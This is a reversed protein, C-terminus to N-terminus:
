LALLTEKERSLFNNGNRKDFLGAIRDTEKDFWEALAKVNYNNNAQYYAAKNRITMTVKEKPINSFLKQAATYFYFRRSLNKQDVDTKSFREFLKVAKTYEEQKTYYVLLVHANFIDGGFKTRSLTKALKLAFEDALENSGERLLPIIFNTYTDKPIHTCTLKRTLLPAAVKLAGTLDNAFIRFTVDRNIVCAECDDLYDRKKFKKWRDHHYKGKELDGMNRYAEYAYQHYVKENSGYEVYRKKLDELTNEIQAKTVAPFDPMVMVVWKYYWLVIMKEDDTGKTQAYKLLWPFVTFYKETFSGESCVDDVFDKRANFQQQETGQLDALNIAKERFDTRESGYPLSDAMEMLSEFTSYEKAM